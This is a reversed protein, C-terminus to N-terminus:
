KTQAVPKKPEKETIARIMKNSMWNFILRFFILTAITIWTQNGLASSLAALLIMALLISLPGAIVHAGISWAGNLAASEDNQYDSKFFDHILEVFYRLGILLFIFGYNLQMISQMGSIVSSEFFMGSQALLDISAYNYNNDKFYAVMLEVSIQDLIFVVLVYGAFVFVLIILALLAHEMAGSFGKYKKGIIIDPNNKQLYFHHWTSFILYFPVFAVIMIINEFVYIFVVDGPDASGGYIM